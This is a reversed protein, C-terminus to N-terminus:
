HVSHEEAHCNACLLVCHQEALVRKMIEASRNRLRRFVADDKVSPDPHHFHLAGQCRNYGCRSCKGGLFDIAIKRNKTTLETREQANCLKCRSQITTRGSRRYFDSEPKSLKCRSCNPM